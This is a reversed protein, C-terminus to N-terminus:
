SIRAKLKYARHKSDQAFGAILNLIGQSIGTESALLEVKSQIALELSLLASFYNETPTQSVQNASAIQINVLNPKINDSLVIEILTDYSESYLEYLEGLFEHDAFFTPGKTLHHANHVYLQASRFQVALGQLNGYDETAQINSSDASEPNSAMSSESESESDQGESNNMESCNESGCKPCCKMDCKEGSWEYSCDSCCYECEDDEDEVGNNIEVEVSIETAVSEHQKKANDLPSNIFKKADYTKPASYLFEDMGEGAVVQADKKAKDWSSYCVAIRQKQDPFDKATQKDGICRSVYESKKEKNKPTPLPM